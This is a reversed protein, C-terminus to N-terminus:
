LTSGKESHSLIKQVSYNPLLNMRQQTSGKESHSLVKEFSYYAFEKRIYYPYQHEPFCVPRICFNDGKHFFITAKDEFTNKAKLKQNDGKSKMNVSDELSVTEISSFNM